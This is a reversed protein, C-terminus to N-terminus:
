ILYVSPFGKFYPLYSIGWGFFRSNFKIKRPIIKQRQLSGNFKCFSGEYNTGGWILQVYIHICGYACQLCSSSDPPFLLGKVRSQGPPPTMIVQKRSRSRSFFVVNSYRARASRTQFWWMHANGGDNGANIRKKEIGLLINYECIIICVCQEFTCIM